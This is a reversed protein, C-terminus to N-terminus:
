VVHKKTNLPKTRVGDAYVRQGPHKEQLDCMLVDTVIFLWASRGLATRSTTVCTVYRRHCSHDLPTM